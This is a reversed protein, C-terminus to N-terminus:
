IECLHFLASSYNERNYSQTRRQAATGGGRRKGNQQRVLRFRPLASRRRFQLFPKQLRGLAAFDGHVATVRSDKMDAVRLKGPLLSKGSKLVFSPRDTGKAAVHHKVAATRM